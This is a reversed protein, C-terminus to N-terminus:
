KYTPIMLLHKTLFEATPCVGSKYGFSGAWEICRGFHTATELGLNMFHTKLIIPDDCLAILMFANSGYIFQVNKKDASEIRYQTKQIRKEISSAVRKKEIEYLRQIGRSMKKLHIREIGSSIRRQNKLPVTFLSYILPINSFARLWLKGFLKLEALGSYEPLTAYLRQAEKLYINNNVMLIGGDGVSPLKGQGISFVSFDGVAGDTSGYAHACDEIIPLHPLIDRIATIDNQIGFLHTVVLARLNNSKAKLDILDILLDKTVDIFELECGAQAVANFVTHCNYAMVGIRSGKPLHLSELALLIGSRAHNLLFENEEPTYPKGWFFSIHQSLTFHIDLRPTM